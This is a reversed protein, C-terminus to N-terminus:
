PRVELFHSCTVGIAVIRIAPFPSAAAVQERWGGMALLAKIACVPEHACDGCPVDVDAAAGALIRDLGPPPVALAAPDSAGAKGEGADTAPASAEQGELPSETSVIHAPKAALKGRRIVGAGADLARQLRKPLDPLDTPLLGKAYADLLTADISQVHKAGLEAMVAKRTGLRRLADVVQQQRSTLAANRSAATAARAAATQAVGKAPPAIPVKPEHKTAGKVFGGAKAGRARSEEASAHPRASAANGRARSEAMRGEPRDVGRRSTYRPLGVADMGPTRVVEGPVDVRVPPGSPSAPPTMDYEHVKNQGDRVIPM